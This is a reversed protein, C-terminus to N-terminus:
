GLVGKELRQADGVGIDVELYAGAGVGLLYTVGHHGEFFHAYFFFGIPYHYNAINIGRQSAGNGGFFEVNFDAV